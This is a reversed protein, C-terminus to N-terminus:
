SVPRALNWRQDFRSIIEEALEQVRVLVSERKGVDKLSAGSVYCVDDTLVYRDHQDDLGDRVQCTRSGEQNFLQLEKALDRPLHAGRTLVRVEIRPDVNSLLDFITRDLYPDAIWIREDAQELLRRVHRYATHPTGAEIVDGVPPFSDFDGENRIVFVVIRECYPCVTALVTGISAGASDTANGSHQQQFRVFTGCHPCHGSEGGFRSM